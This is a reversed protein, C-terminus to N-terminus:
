NSVLNSIIIVRHISFLNTFESNIYCHTVLKPALNILFHIYDKKLPACSNSVKQKFNWAEWLLLSEFITENENKNEVAHNTIMPAANRFVNRIWLITTLDPFHYTMSIVKLTVRYKHERGKHTSKIPIWINHFM